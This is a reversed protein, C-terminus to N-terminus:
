IYNWSDNMESIALSSLELQFEQLQAHAEVSMPLNFLDHMIHVNHTTSICIRKNKQMPTYSLSNFKGFKAMGFIMGCSVLRGMELPSVQSDKINVWSNSLMEGGFPARQLPSTQFSEM